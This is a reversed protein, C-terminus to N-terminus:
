VLLKTTNTIDLEAGNFENVLRNSQASSYNHTKRDLNLVSLGFSVPKM